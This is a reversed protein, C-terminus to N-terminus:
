FVSSHMFQSKPKPRKLSISSSGNKNRFIKETLILQIWIILSETHLLWLFNSTILGM